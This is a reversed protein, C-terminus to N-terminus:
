THTASYDSFDLKTACEDGNPWRVITNGDETEGVVYSWFYKTGDANVYFTNDVEAASATPVVAALLASVALTNKIKM